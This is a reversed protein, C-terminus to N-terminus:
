DTGTHAEALKSSLQDQQHFLSFCTAMTSYLGHHNVSAPLALM